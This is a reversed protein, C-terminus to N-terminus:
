RTISSIRLNQHIPIFVSRIGYVMVGNENSVTNKFSKSPCMVSVSHGKKTLANALRYTFYAAGNANPYYTHTALLIKM